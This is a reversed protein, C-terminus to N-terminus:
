KSHAFVSNDILNRLFCDNNARNALAFLDVFFLDVHMERLPGCTGAGARQVLSKPKQSDTNTVRKEEKLYVVM